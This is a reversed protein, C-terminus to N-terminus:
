GPNVIIIEILLNGTLLSPLPLPCNLERWTGGVGRGSGAVQPRVRSGDGGRGGAAEPRSGCRKTDPRAGGAGAVKLRVGSGRGRRRKPDLGM